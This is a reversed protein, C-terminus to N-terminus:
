IVHFHISTRRGRCVYVCVQTMGATLYMKMNRDYLTNWLSNPAYKYLCKLINSLFM